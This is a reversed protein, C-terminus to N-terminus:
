NLTRVLHADKNEALRRIFTEFTESNNLAKLTEQEYDELRERSTDALDATYAFEPQMRYYNDKLDERMHEHVRQSHPDMAASLVGGVDKLGAHVPLQYEPLAEGTGLSLVLIHPSRPTLNYVHCLRRYVSQTPNNDWLGGDVMTYTTERTTNSLQAAPFYTPAASTARTIDKLYFNKHVDQWIVGSDFLFPQTKNCTEGNKATILAPILVDTLTNELTMEQFYQTLLTELPRPSYAPKFLRKFLHFTKGVFTRHSPFIRPGQHYFFDIMDKPKMIPTYGDRTANSGLTLIGGISTGSVYDFLHHIPGGQSEIERLVVAPILGRMGGGDIALATRISEAVPRM